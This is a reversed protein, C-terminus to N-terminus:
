LTLLSDTLTPPLAFSSACSSAHQQIVGQTPKRSQHGPHASTQKHWAATSTIIVPSPMSVPLEIAMLPPPLQLSLRIQLADLTLSAAGLCSVSEEATPQRYSYAPRCTTGALSESLPACPCLM